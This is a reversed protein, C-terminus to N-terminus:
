TTIPGTPAARCSSASRRPHHEDHHPDAGALYPHAAGHQRGRCRRWPAPLLHRADAPRSAGGAHQPRHLQPLRGRHGAGRRGRLGDRRLDGDVRGRDTHDSASARVSGAPGAAVCRYARGGVQRVHRGTGARAAQGRHSRGGIGQCREPSPRSGQASRPRARGPDEDPRHHPGEQGARQGKSRGAGCSRRRRRGRGDVRKETGRSKEMGPAEGAWDRSAQRGNGAGAM